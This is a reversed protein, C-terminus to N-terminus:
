CDGIIVVTGVTDIRVYKNTSLTALSHYLNDGVFVTTLAVDTYLISGVDLIIDSSYLLLGFSYGCATITNNNTLSSFNYTYYTPPPVVVDEM